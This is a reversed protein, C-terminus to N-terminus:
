TEALHLIVNSKHPDLCIGCGRQPGATIPTGPFLARPLAIIITVPALSGKLHTLLHCYLIQATSGQLTSVSCPCFLHVGASLKPRWSCQGSIRMGTCALATLWPTDVSQSRPMSTRVRSKLGSCYKKNLIKERVVTYTGLAGHQLQPCPERHSASAKFAQLGLNSVGLGMYLWAHYRAGTIGLSQASIPPPPLLIELLMRLLLCCLSDMEFATSPSRGCGLNGGSRWGHAIADRKLM